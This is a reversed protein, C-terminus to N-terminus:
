LNRNLLEFGNAEMDDKEKKLLSPFQSHKKLKSTPIGFTTVVFQDGKGFVLGRSQNKTTYNWCEILNFIESEVNIDTYKEVSEWNGVKISEVKTNGGNGTNSIYAVKTGNDYLDATFCPTGKSQSEFYKVKKVSLNM